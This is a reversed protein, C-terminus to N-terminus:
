RLRSGTWGGTRRWSPWHRTMRRRFGNMDWIRHGSGLCVMGAKGDRVARGWDGGHRGHGLGAIGGGRARTARDPPPDGHDDEDETGGGDPNSAHIGGAGVLLAVEREEGRDDGGGRQEKGPPAQEGVGRASPAGGADERDEGGDDQGGGGEADGADAAVQKGDKLEAPLGDGGDRGSGGGVDTRGGLSGGLVGVEGLEEAGVAVAGEAVESEGGVPGRVAGDFEPAVGDTGRPGSEDDGIADGVGLFLVIQLFPDGRIFQVRSLGEPVVGGGTAVGGGDGALSRARGWGEVAIAEVGHAGGAVEGADISAGTFREPGLGEGLEGATADGLPTEGRGWEDGVVEDEDLGTAFGGDPGEVCGIAPDGPGSAFVAGAVAGWGEELNSGGLLENDETGAGDEGQIGFVSAFEPLMGEAGAHGEHGVREDDAGVAKEDAGTVVDAGGGELDLGVGGDGLEPAGPLELGLEGVWGNEAVHDEAEVVADEGADFEGVALAQPLFASVPVPLAQENAVEVDEHSLTTFDAEELGGACPGAFEGAAPDEIGLGPVGDGEGSIEKDDAVIAFGGAEAKGEGM